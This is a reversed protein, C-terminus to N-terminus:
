GRLGEEGLSPEAPSASSVAFRATFHFTSGQGVESEVWLRGQMMEVLRASITLGLGTGGFHRTTSNDAQEFADFIRTLKDAPIGIGTDRVSFRLVSWEVEAQEVNVMLVVEGDQTFKIANGVLNIVLQRLRGADGILHGPVAPDIEFALEIGKQHARLALAKMTEAIVAHIAFPRPDLALKGAEIKSFDLIDNILGLLADASSKVLTLYERQTSSLETDLALETMGLVGNMPTRIEHSMNALFESKTRSAEEAAHKAKELRANVTQLELTRAAVKGELNEHHNRLESDRQAIAELMQNFGEILLGIEQYGGRLDGMSYDAGQGISRTRHALALIPASIVRQLRSALLFALALSVLLVLLTILAYELQRSKLENLDWELFITGALEGNSYIRRTLRLSNRGFDHGDLPAAAPISNSGANWRVYTAFPRGDKAYIRATIVNSESELSRLSDDAAKPDNFILAATSNSGIIDALLLTERFISFRAAMTEYVSFVGCALLLAAATTVMIITKLKRSIPTKSSAFM